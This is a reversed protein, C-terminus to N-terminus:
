AHSTVEAKLRSRLTPDNAIRFWNGIITACLAISAIALGPWLSVWWASALYPQGEAVMLGWTVDPPQVGIGLFTLTSEALMVVAFELAAIALLTPMVLPVIHKVIVHMDNSGMVRAAAVFGRERIELAESRATRAFIPIRTITLVAIVNIPHAGLAYLIVMALLLSPISLLVDIARMVAASLWNDRLATVLGIATGIVLSLLVTAFAIALTTSAAVVMRAIISAGLADAGLFYMWNQDLQFPPLHRARLNLRLMSPEILLPGVLAVLVMALLFGMALLAIWDSRLMKWYFRM